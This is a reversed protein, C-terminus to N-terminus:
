SDVPDIACKSMLASVVGEMERVTKPGVKLQEAKCQALVRLRVLDDTDRAAQDLHRLGPLKWFGRLDIGGDGKGGVRTLNM